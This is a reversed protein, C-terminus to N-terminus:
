WGIAGWILSASNTTAQRGYKCGAATGAHTFVAGQQSQIGSRFYSESGYFAIPFTVSVETASTLNGVRGGQSVASPSM